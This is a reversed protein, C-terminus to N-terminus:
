YANSPIGHFKYQTYVVMTNYNMYEKMLFGDTTSPNNDKLRRLILSNLREPDYGIITILPLFKMVNITICYRDISHHHVDFNTM